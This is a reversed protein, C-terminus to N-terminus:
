GLVQNAVDFKHHTHLIGNLVVVAVGVGTAEAVIYYDGNSNRDYLGRALQAVRV